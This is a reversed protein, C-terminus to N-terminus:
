IADKYIKRIQQPTYDGRWQKKDYMAQYVRLAQRDGEKINAQGLRKEYVASVNPMDAKFGEYRWRDKEKDFYITTSGGSRKYTVSPM